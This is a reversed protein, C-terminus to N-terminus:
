PRSSSIKTRSLLTSAYIPDLFKIKASICIVIITHRVNCMAGVHYHAIVQEEFLPKGYTNSIYSTEKHAKSRTTKIIKIGLM